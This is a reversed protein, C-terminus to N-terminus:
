KEEPKKDTKVNDSKIALLDRIETLLENTTPEKPPEIVPAAGAPQPEDKKNRDKIRGVASRVGTRARSITRFIIFIVLAIIFVALGPLTFVPRFTRAM